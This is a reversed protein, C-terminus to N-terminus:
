PPLVLSINRVDLSMRLQEPSPLPARGRQYAEMLITNIFNTTFLNNDFVGVTRGVASSPKGHFNNKTYSSYLGPQRYFPPQRNSSILNNKQPILYLSFNLKFFSVFFVFCQSIKKRDANNRLLCYKIVVSKMNVSWLIFFLDINTFFCIRENLVSVM